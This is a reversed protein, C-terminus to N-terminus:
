FKLTCVKLIKLTFVKSRSWGNLVHAFKRSKKGRGGEMLLKKCETWRFIENFYSGELNGVDCISPGKALYNTNKYHANLWDFWVLMSFRKQLLSPLKFWVLMSFRKTAFYVKVEMSTNRRRPLVYYYLTLVRVCVEGQHFIFSLFFCFWDCQSWFYMGLLCYIM